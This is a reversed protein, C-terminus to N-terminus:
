IAFARHELEKVKKLASSQITFTSNANMFTNVHMELGINKIVGQACCFKHCELNYHSESFPSNLLYSM